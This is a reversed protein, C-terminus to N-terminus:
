SRPAADSRPCPAASPAHSPAPATAALSTGPPQMIAATPAPRWLAALMAVLLATFVALAVADMNLHRRNRAAVLDLRSANTM